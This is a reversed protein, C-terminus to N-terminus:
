IQEDEDLLAEARKKMMGEKKCRICWGQLGNRNSQSRGFAERPKDKGCHICTATEGAKMLYVINEGIIDLEGEIEKSPWDIVPAEIEVGVIKEGEQILKTTVSGDKFLVRAKLYIV